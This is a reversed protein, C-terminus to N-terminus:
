LKIHSASRDKAKIRRFDIDALVAVPLRRAVTVPL